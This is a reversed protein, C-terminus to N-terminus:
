KTKNLCFQISNQPENEVIIKQHMQKLHNRYFLHDGNEIFDISKSTYKDFFVKLEKEKIVVHDSLYNSIELLLIKENKLTKLALDYAENILKEAEREIKKVSHIFLNTHLSPTQFSLKTSGLGQTKLMELIFNTAQKLDSGCGATVNENGFILEEAAYGGLFLALRLLIEKKSIYKWNFESFVFGNVNDEITRSYVYKPVTKLLVASLIAHGSEHVATISQLDNKKNLDFKKLDSAVDIEQQHVTQENKLYTAQIIHNNKVQIDIISADIKDILITSIFSTIRNRILDNITTLVPRVGQTPYVGEEYVLDIISTDFLLKIKTIEFLKDSIISIEKKIIARYAKKSLAPYIIHINGLRSIQEHRFSSQLANKIRSINIKLSTKHFEDACIDTSYNNSISYAEDINGMVFILSKSFDREVPNSGIKVVKKLFDISEKGDFSMLLKDLESKLKIDLKAGALRIIDDFFYEAIFRKEEHNRSYEAKSKKWGKVIKGEEVEIGAFLMREYITITEKISWVGYNFIQHQIKGSDILEWLIRNEDDKEIKQFGELTKAHQFEDLAIIVPKELKNECLEYITKTLSDKGKKHGLDIRYYYSNYDILQVLRNILSTKGVGTLGWLNIIFPRDQIDSLLYWSNISDIIQDIPKDVGIFEKKLQKRTNELIQKKTELTIKLKELQQGMM